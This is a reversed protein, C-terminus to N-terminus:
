VLKLQYAKTIEQVFKSDKRVYWCLELTNKDILPYGRNNFLDLLNYPVKAFNKTIKGDADFMETNFIKTVMNFEEILIDDNYEAGM